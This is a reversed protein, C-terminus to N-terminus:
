AQFNVDVYDPDIIQEQLYKEFSDGSDFSEPYYCLFYGETMEYSGYSGQIKMSSAINAGYTEDSRRYTFWEPANDEEDNWGEKQITDTVGEQSHCTHKFKSKVRKTKCEEEKWRHQIM